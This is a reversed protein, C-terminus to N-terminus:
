RQSSICPSGSPRAEIGADALGNRIRKVSRLNYGLEVHEYHQAPERQFALKRV